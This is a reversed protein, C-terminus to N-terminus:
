QSNKQSSSYTQFAQTIYTQTQKLAAVAADMANFQRTLTASYTNLRAQLDTRKRGVDSLGSTLGQTITDLLGGGQTYQGLLNDMQTALGNQGSLLGTVAGLNASLATGLKSDDQSFTGDLSTTIGLDALSTVSGSIGTSSQGLIQRLRSMLTNVTSNGLLTGATRTSSDYSTLAKVSTVLANYAKVFNGVASSSGSQDYGVTLTTPTSGTAKLLTFNVGSIVGTVENSASTVAFGNLTFQADAPAQSQTLQTNGNAPDYVLPALGGDGGSQTVTIANAAGTKTGNLVLRAGAATNIITANVGPNGPASNIAAAIGSLTNNTSDITVQTSVGGLAITLTGTGLTSDASAIPSSVLSAAAALSTVSLTYTAPIASSTATASAITTDGLTAARGQLANADKLSTLTAQVAELAARFTGFASVQAKLTSERSDLQANQAAGEATTLQSVISAIDLGSGIGLTQLTGATASSALASGSSGQASGSASGTALSATSVPNSSSVASAISM